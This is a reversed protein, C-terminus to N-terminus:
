RDCCCPTRHPSRDRTEHGADTSPSTTVRIEETPGTRTLHRGAECCRVTPGDPGAWGSGAAFRHKKPLRRDHGGRPPPLRRSMADIAVGGAIAAGIERESAVDRPAGRAAELPAHNMATGHAKGEPREPEHGVASRAQGAALSAGTRRWGGRTGEYHAARRDWKRRPSWTSAAEATARMRIPYRGAGEHRRRQPEGHDDRELEVSSLGDVAHPAPRLALEKGTLLELDDDCARGVM